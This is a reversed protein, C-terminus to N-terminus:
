VKTIILQDKLITTNWTLLGLRHLEEIITLKSCIFLAPFEQLESFLQSSREVECSLISM